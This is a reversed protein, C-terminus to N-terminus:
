DWVIDKKTAVATVEKPSLEVVEGIYTSSYDTSLGRVSFAWRM